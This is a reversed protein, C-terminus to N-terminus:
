KCNLLKQSSFFESGIGHNTENILCSNTVSKFCFQKAVNKIQLKEIKSLKQEQNCTTLTALTERKAKYLSFFSLGLDYNTIYQKNLLFSRYNQTKIFHM